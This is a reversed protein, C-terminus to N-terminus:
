SRDREGIEGKIITSESYTVKHKLIHFAEILTEVFFTYTSLSDANKAVGPSPTKWLQRRKATMIYTSLFFSSVCLDAISLKAFKPM